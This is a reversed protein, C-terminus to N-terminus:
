LYLNRQIIIKKWNIGNFGIKFYKCFLFLAIWVGTVIRIDIVGSGDTSSGPTTTCRGTPVCVCTSGPAPTVIAPTIVQGIGPGIGTGNIM